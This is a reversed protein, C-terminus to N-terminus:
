DIKLQPYSHEKMQEPMEETRWACSWPLDRVEEKRDKQEEWFLYM